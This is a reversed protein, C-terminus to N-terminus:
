AEKEEESKIDRLLATIRDDQNLIEKLQQLARSHRQRVTGEKMGIFQGIEKFTRHERAYRLEILLKDIEALQAMAQRVAAVITTTRAVNEEVPEPAVLTEPLPHAAPESELWDAYKNRAITFVWAEFSSGERAEYKGVDMSIDSVCSVALEEAEAARIGRSIFMARFLAGFKDSFERFADPERACM